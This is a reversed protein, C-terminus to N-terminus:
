AAGIHAVDSCDKKGRAVNLYSRRYHRGLPPVIHPNGPDYNIASSNHQEQETQTQVLSEPVMMPGVM